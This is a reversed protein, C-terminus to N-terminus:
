LVIHDDPSWPPTSTVEVWTENGIAHHVQGPLIDIEEGEAMLALDEGDGVLRLHGTLIRYHEKTHRHLHPVSRDIVAIAKGKTPDTECIIETPHEPPIPVINADPYDQRLKALVRETDMVREKYSLNSLWLIDNLQSITLILSKSSLRKASRKSIIM